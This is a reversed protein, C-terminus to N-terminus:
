ILSTSFFAHITKTIYKIDHKSLENYTPLNLSRLAINTSVPFFRKSKKYPPMLHLPYFVPRTEIDNKALYTALSDRKNAYKPQLSLSFMWYSHQVWPKPKIFTVYKSLPSLYEEYWKSLNRRQNLFTNINELQALGIAAEINTMRYNYGIINFWFRKKPNMGQGKLLRITNALKKNNTVVMGGEGTTIIKNGFFSFTAIDGMSGVIKNKYYAGHAQAADEIVFLNFKKALKLIPDMDCPYGYLPVVIIGKTKKTINAEIKKPDINWTEDCDVLVPKAGCYSVANATAIYTLTPVIIEDGKKINKALLALHIAVTGNCCSIAYKRNVFKAFAKEFLDIYKGNSSIWSTDICDLVYKKENGKLAPQAVPILKNQM